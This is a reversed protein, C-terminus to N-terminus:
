SAPDLIEITLTNDTAQIKTKYGVNNILREIYTMSFVSWNHGVDHHMVLKRAGKEGSDFERLTFGSKKVRNKTFSIVSELDVKGYLMILENEFNDAARTAIEKIEEESVRDFLDKLVSKQMPVFGVKPALFEWELYSDIINNVLTNLSMKSDEALTRLSELKKNLVRFTVSTSEM